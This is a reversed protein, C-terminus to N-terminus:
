FIDPIPDQKKEDWFLKVLGNDRAWNTYENINSKFKKGVIDNLGNLALLTMLCDLIKFEPSITLEIQELLKTLDNHLSSFETTTEYHADACLHRKVRMGSAVMGELSPQDDCKLVISTALSKRYRKNILIARATYGENFSGYTIDASIPEIKTKNLYSEALYSAYFGETKWCAPTFITGSEPSYKSFPNETM